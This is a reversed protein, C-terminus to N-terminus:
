RRSVLRLPPHPPDNIGLRDLTQRGGIAELREVWECLRHELPTHRSRRVVAEVIFEEVARPGYAHLQRCWRRVRLEELEDM